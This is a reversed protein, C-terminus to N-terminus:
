IREDLFCFCFLCVFVVGRSVKHSRRQKRRGFVRDLPDACACRFPCVVRGGREALFCIRGGRQLPPVKTDFLGNNSGGDDDDDDFDHLDHMNNFDRDSDDDLVFDGALSDDDNIDLPQPQSRSSLAETLSTVSARPSSAIYMHVDTAAASSILAGPEGIDIDNDDDLEANLLGVNKSNRKKGGFFPMRARQQQQRKSSNQQWLAVLRPDAKNLNFGSKSLTKPSRQMHWANMYNNTLPNRYM